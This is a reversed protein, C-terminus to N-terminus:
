LPPAAVLSSWQTQLVSTDVNFFSLASQVNPDTSNLLLPLEAAPNLRLRNVLELMYQERAGASPTLRDELQEVHIRVARDRRGNNIPLASQCLWSRLATLKRLLM